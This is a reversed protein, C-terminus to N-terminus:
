ILLVARGVKVGEKLDLEVGYKGMTGSGVVLEPLRVRRGRVEIEKVFSDVVFITEPLDVGDVIITTYVYKDIEIREGDIWYVRRPRELRPWSAGFHKEFFARQVATVGVGTDFLATCDVEKGMYRLKVNKLARM